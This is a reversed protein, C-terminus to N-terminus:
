LVAEGVDDVREQIKYASRHLPIDASLFKGNTLDIESKRIM